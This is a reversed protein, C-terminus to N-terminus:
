NAKVTIRRPKAEPAKPVNITLIGDRYTADISEVDVRGPLRLARHFRGFRREIRKFGDSEKEEYFKREGTVSLVGDELNVDVEDPSIGALELHLVFADETEEVDLAPAWAGASAADEGQMVGSGVPRELFRRFMREVEDQWSVADRSGSWQTMANAMNRNVETQITAKLQRSLDTM